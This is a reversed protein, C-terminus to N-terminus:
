DVPRCYVWAKLGLWLAPLQQIAWQSNFDEVVRDARIFVPAATIRPYTDILALALGTDMTEQGAVDACFAERRADPVGSKPAMMSKEMMTFVPDVGDAFRRGAELGSEFAASRSSARIERYQDWTLGYPAEYDPDRSEDAVASGALIATLFGVLGIYKM